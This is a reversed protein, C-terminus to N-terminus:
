RGIMSSLNSTGGWGNLTNKPALNVTANCYEWTQLTNTVVKRRLASVQLGIIIHIQTPIDYSGHPSKLRPGIKWKNNLSTTKAQNTERQLLAKLYKLRGSFLNRETRKQQSLLSGSYCILLHSGIHILRVEKSRITPIAKDAVENEIKATDGNGSAEKLKIRESRARSLNAISFKPQSPVVKEILDADKSQARTGATVKIKVPSEVEFSSDSGINLPVDKSGLQPIIKLSEVSKANTRAENDMQNKAKDKNLKVEKSVAVVEPSLSAELLGTVESLGQRTNSNV